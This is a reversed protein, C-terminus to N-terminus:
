AGEGHVPEGLLTSVVLDLGVGRSAKVLVVDGTGLGLREPDAIWAACGAADDFHVTEAGAEAAASELHASLPGVAVVEFGLKAAARGVQAHFGAEDPGLELMDGLFAIHRTAELGRASELAREAADPNSNYSDDVLVAGSPLQHVEGRMPAARFDFLVRRIDELAVGLQLGCAIAALANEVNYLGHIGLEMTSDDIGFRPAQLRFRSGVRCSDQLRASTAVVELDTARIDADDSLVGYTLVSTGPHADLHRRAIRMVEPDDANAVVRGEPSLGTLLESKAEAIEHVSRFNVLHVARVNTFVALDPRGLLSVGRLEGPTSMGMEAVMWETNESIGLLSLPFGYLNNLNGPSKAVRFRTALVAAILEKTTTKGASGTIGLLHKPTEARVAHTLAHLSAFTDDVRIVAVDAPTAQLDRHVLIAAAGREAAQAVFDHGDTREGPLAVFLEGGSVKRSDIAVRAWRARPSGAVVQGGVVDATWQVVREVM